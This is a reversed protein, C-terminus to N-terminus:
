YQRFYRRLEPPPPKATWYSACEPPRARRLPDRRRLRFLLALPTFLGYFILALAAQSVIWGLPFAVIMCGVYLWRLAAPALLGLGGVGVALAGLVVAAAHDGRVLWRHAACALLILLWAAAFQRLVRRAPQFQIDSWNM